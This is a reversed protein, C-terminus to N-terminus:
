HVPSRSVLYLLPFLFIWIIDVFHWYLGFNEVMTYHHPPYAGRYAKWILAILIGAGIIMHLAHMGTMAFYLSFFISTQSAVDPRALVEHHEAREYNFDFNAGPVHHEVWKQHYEVGKIGLFVGGLGLTFVLFFILLKRAGVAASHVAMAMTLSSCILVATNIAGLTIDISSSAIVFAPNYLNRYILYAAFLGGFFMIETILFVWMGFQSADKQQELTDFQEVLEPEHHHQLQ